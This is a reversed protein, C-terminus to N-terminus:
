EHAAGEAARAAVEAAAVAGDTRVRDGAQLGSLAEVMAVDDIQHADGPIVTRLMLGADTEVAVFDVGARTILASQPVALGARTGMPLRVLVRADVYRDSLGEVAVDAVVRGNEILPYVRELKGLTEGDPGEIPLTDGEKLATAHREPVALRLFIGGGGLVAVVEGPMVVAGMAVPVDLVRGDAPALVAGEDSQQQVVQREASVAEIQGNLVDVQTRLADLRQVTTVGRSLLDEGRKLEAEANALQAELSTKQADIASLQFGLKEDVIRGLVDGAKVTDGEKVALDVLTGGLRARAPLRDRAEIRGFVAKWDTLEVPQLTFTEATASLPLWLALITAILRM